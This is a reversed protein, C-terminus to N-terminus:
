PKQAPAPPAVPALDSGDKQFRVVKMKESLGRIEKGAMDQALNQEVQARVQDFPPAKRPRRDEVKLIHWGFQTKVPAAVMEGVKLAFAADAFEKVMDTQVFYGVEGGRAASGTDTSKDKALKAFDEGAKLKALVDKAEEETKVLIHRAKVEDQAPMAKVIEDYRAKVAAETVQPKVKRALWANAVLGEEAKKLQAKVEPDNQMGDAYAAKLVLMRSLMQDRVEGFVEEPSLSKTMEPKLSDIEKQVQSRHIEIGEGRAVVPDSGKVSESPASAPAKAAVPMAALALLAGTLALLTRTNRM